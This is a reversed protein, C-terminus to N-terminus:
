HSDTHNQTFWHSEFHNLTIWHSEIFQVMLLIEKKCMDRGDPSPSARTGQFSPAHQLKPPRACKLHHPQPQRFLLPTVGQGGYKQLDQARTSWGIERFKLKLQKLSIYNKKQFPFIAAIKSKTGSLTHLECQWKNDNDDDPLTHCAELATVYLPLALM